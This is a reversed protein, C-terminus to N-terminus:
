YCRRAAPESLPLPPAPLTRSFFARAHANIRRATCFLTRTRAHEDLPTSCGFGCFQGRPPTTYRLCTHLPRWRRTSSTKPPTIDVDQICGVALSRVSTLSHTFASTRWTTWLYTDRPAHSATHPTGATLSATTHPSRPAAACAHAASLAARACSRALACCACVWLPGLVPLL